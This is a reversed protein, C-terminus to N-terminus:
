GNTPSGLFPWGGRYCGDSDNYVFFGGSANAMQRIQPSAVQPIQLTAEQRIKSAMCIMGDTRRQDWVHNRLM